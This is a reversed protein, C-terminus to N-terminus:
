IRRFHRSIFLRVRVVTTIQGGNFAAIFGGFKDLKLKKAVPEAGPTPRGTAIM